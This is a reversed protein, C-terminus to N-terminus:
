VLSDQQKKRLRIPDGVLYSVKMHCCSVYKTPSDSIAVEKVIHDWRADDELLGLARCAVQFTSHIVAAVTKLATFSM